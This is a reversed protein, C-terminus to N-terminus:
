SYEFSYEVVDEIFGDAIEEIIKGSKRFYRAAKEWDETGYADKYKVLAQAFKDRSARHLNLIGSKLGSIEYPLEPLISGTYEIFHLYIKQLEEKTFKDAWDSFEAIFRDLGRQGMFSLTSSLYVEANKGIGKQVLRTIDTEPTKMDIGFYANKKSIGIYDEAWALGLEAILITQVETKSNDHFYVNAEDYNDSFVGDAKLLLIRVRNVTQAQITRARTQLELFEREETSLTITTAKIGM